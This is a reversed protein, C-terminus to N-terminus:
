VITSSPSVPVPLLVNPFQISLLSLAKSVDYLNASLQVLDVNTFSPLVELPLFSRTISVGPRFSQSPSSLLSM